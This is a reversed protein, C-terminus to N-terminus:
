EQTEDSDYDGLVNSEIDNAGYVSQENHNAKASLRDRQGINPSPLREVSERNNFASRQMKQKSRFSEAEAV